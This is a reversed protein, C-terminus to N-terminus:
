LLPSIIGGQPVGVKNKKGGKYVKDEYIPAKLWLKILHLIRGDSIRQAIVKMLKDHPITDFYASLDADLVETYDNKM